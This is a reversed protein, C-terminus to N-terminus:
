ATTLKNILMKAIFFILEHYKNQQGQGRIQLLDFCSFINSMM